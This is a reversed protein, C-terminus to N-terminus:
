KSGKKKDAIVDGLYIFGGMIIFGLGAFFDLWGEGLIIVSIGAGMSLLGIVGGNM